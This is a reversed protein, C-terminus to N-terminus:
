GKMRYRDGERILFGERVLEEAAAAARERIGAAATVAEDISFSSKRAAVDLIRGRIQRNSGEFPKQRVYHRSRKALGPYLKKLMVGYDMLAYYWERPNQRDLSEEIFPFIERDAVGEAEQFFEHLFVRRINVEIFVTPVNYAFTAISCSTAPGVMPFSRLIEPDQPVIGGHRGIIIGAIEKLALARKNYGLGQWYRFLEKLPADALAPFNPFREVFPTYKKEVCYTQTQQLMIESVVIKYPDRTERWPFTRGHERYYNLIRERFPEVDM